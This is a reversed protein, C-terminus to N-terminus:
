KAAAPEFTAGGITVAYKAFSLECVLIERDGIFKEKLLISYVLDVRITFGSDPFEKEALVAPECRIVYADGQKIKGAQASTMKLELRGGQAYDSSGSRFTGRVPRDRLSELEKVSALGVWVSGDKKRTVSYVTGSLTLTKEQLDKQLAKRAAAAVDAQKAPTNAENLDAAYGNYRALFADLRIERAKNADAPSNAEAPRSASAPRSAGSAALLPSVALMATLAMGAGVIGLMAKM